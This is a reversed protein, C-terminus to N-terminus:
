NVRELEPAFFGLVKVYGPSLVTKLEVDFVFTGVESSHRVEKVVGIHGKWVGERKVQVKDGKHFPLLAYKLEASGAAWLFWAILLPWLLGLISRHFVFHTVLLTVILFRSIYVAVKLGHSKDKTVAWAVSHALRGGDLPFLPLINFVGLVFNLLALLGLLEFVIGLPQAVALTVFFVAALLFSTLPGVVAIFLMDRPRKAEEELHAAAGLLFVTVKDCKVGVARAAFVHAFEHTMLSLFAGVVFIALGYVSSIAASGWLTFILLLVLASLGIRVETKFIRFKM